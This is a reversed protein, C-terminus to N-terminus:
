LRGRHMVEAYFRPKHQRQGWKRGKLRPHGAMKFGPSRVEQWQRLQKKLRDNTNTAM